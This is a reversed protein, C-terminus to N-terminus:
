KGGRKQLSAFFSEQIALAESVEAYWQRLVPSGEDPHLMGQAVRLAALVKGADDISVAPRNDSM